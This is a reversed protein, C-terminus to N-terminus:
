SDPLISKKSSSEQTEAQIESGGNRYHGYGSYALNQAHDEDNFNVGGGHSGQPAYDRLFNPQPERFHPQFAIGAPSYQPTNYYNNHGAFGSSFDPKCFKFFGILGPVVIALFGLLKKFSALGLIM